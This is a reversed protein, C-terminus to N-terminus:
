ANYGARKQTKLVLNLEERSLSKWGPCERNLEEVTETRMHPFGELYYAVLDDSKGKGVAKFGGGRPVPAARRAEVKVAWRSTVRAPLSPISRKSRTGTLGEWKYRTSMRENGPEVVVIVGEDRLLKLYTSCSRHDRKEPLLEALKRTPFFWPKGKHRESLAKVMEVVAPMVKSGPWLKECLRLTDEIPTVGRERISEWMAAEEQPPMSAVRIGPWIEGARGIVVSVDSFGGVDEELHSAEAWLSVTGRVQDFGCQMGVTWKLKQLFRFLEKGWSEPKKHAKQLALRRKLTNAACDSALSALDSHPTQTM